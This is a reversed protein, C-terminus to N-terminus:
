CPNGRRLYDDCAERSLDNIFTRRETMFLWLLQKRIPTHRVGSLLRKPDFTCLMAYESRTQIWALQAVVLCGTEFSLCLQATLTVLFFRVSGAM